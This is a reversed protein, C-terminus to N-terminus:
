FFKLMLQGQVQNKSDVEINMNYFDEESIEGLEVYDILARRIYFLEVLSYNSLIDLLENKDGNIGLETAVQINENLLLNVLYLLIKEKIQALDVKSKSKRQKKVKKPEPMYDFDDSLDEIDYGEINEEAYGLYKKDVLELVSM